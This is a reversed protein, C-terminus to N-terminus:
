AGLTPQGYDFLICNIEFIDYLEHEICYRIITDSISSPSLALGARGLLDVTEDLNLELAIAFALATRKTPNYNVNSKIKSFLKRDINAKKYVEVDDADKRDILRFLHQQFTEKRNKILEEISEEDDASPIASADFLPAEDGLSEDSLPEDFFPEESDEDPLPVGIGRDELIGKGKPVHHNLLNRRNRSEYSCLDGAEYSGIERVVVESEEIYSRVDQFLRGSLEFAERNYVVLYVMMDHKMLFASIEDIATRLALDKPFGLTGTSILPFAISELGLEEAIGLSNRYCKAVTEAEGSEGDIWLPGVTHIIYKADLGFADTYAADGPEMRGIKRRESLLEDWGAERYVAEDVGAGVVPDPNATNVIADAKVRTIDNRVIELPM